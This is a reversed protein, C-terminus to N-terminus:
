TGLLREIEIRTKIGYLINDITRMSETYFEIQIELIDIKGRLEAIQPVGDVIAEKEGSTKVRMQINNIISDYAASKLSRYQKRLLVLKDLIIHSDELMRQRASLMSVQVEVLKKTERMNAISELVRKNEVDRSRRFVAILKAGIDEYKEGEALMFFHLLSQSEDTM